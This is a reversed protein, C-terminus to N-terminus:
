TCQVCVRVCPPKMYQVIIDINLVRMHVQIFISDRFLVQNM